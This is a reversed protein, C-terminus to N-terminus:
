NVLLCLARQMLNKKDSHLFTSAGAMGPSSPFQPQGWCRTCAWAGQCHSHQAGQPCVLRGVRRCLPGAPVCHAADSPVYLRWPAVRTGLGRSGM